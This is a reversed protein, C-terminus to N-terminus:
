RACCSSWGGHLVELTGQVAADPACPHAHRSATWGRSRRTARPNYKMTCSGLPYFNTDLCFNLRSLRTYHRVVEFEGMEPLRPPTKRLAGEPLWAAAPKAPKAFRVARRGAVSKEISLQEPRNM